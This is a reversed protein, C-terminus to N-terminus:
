VAIGKESTEFMQGFRPSLVGFVALAAAGRLASRQCDSAVVVRPVTRNTRASISNTLGDSLTALREILSQPALGGLVITEPDFLNEITRIASRFIPAIADVWDEESLGSRKFADLSLYRELCGRNGCHCLEGDPIAAIHGIEGANGWAGRMVVGDHMMAGGLGVSFFLYFYDSFQQGLGYLQEGLAAAAMDNEMFAPLGTADALRQRIDVNKWGAMTTPGVFSMSDVDFPGPLALGAGLLRGQRPSAKLDAVMDGILAFAEDPMANPAPRQRSEVVDGRLNVLAAEIGLPTLHIGVAHGGEPNITLASPPIGRGKPKERVSLLLGQDELERVITSVTQVTLGVREAVDGRTTPGHLRISELVIRRNYPRGSEQNTGRLAM